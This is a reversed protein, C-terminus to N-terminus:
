IVIMSIKYLNNTILGTINLLELQKSADVFQWVPTVPGALVLPSTTNDQVNIIWLGIPKTSLTSKFFLPFANTTNQFSITVIQAALNDQFTLGNQMGQSITTFFSNIPYLLRGIWSKQDQFDEVVIRKFPPLQM